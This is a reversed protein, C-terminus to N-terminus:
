EGNAVSKPGAGHLHKWGRPTLGFTAPDTYLDKWLYGLAALWELVKLDEPSTARVRGYKEIDVLYRKEEPSM